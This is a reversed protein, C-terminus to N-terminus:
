YLGYINDEMIVKLLANRLNCNRWMIQVKRFFIDEHIVVTFFFTHYLILQCLAHLQLICDKVPNKASEYLDSLPSMQEVSSIKNTPHKVLEKYIICYLNTPYSQSFKLIRGCGVSEGGVWVVRHEM